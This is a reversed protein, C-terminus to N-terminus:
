RTHRAGQQPEQRELMRRQATKDSGGASAPTKATKNSDTGGGAQGNMMDEYEQKDRAVTEASGQMAM